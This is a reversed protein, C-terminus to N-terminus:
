SAAPAEASSQSIWCSSETIEPARKGSYRGRRIIGLFASKVRFSLHVFRTEADCCSFLAAFHYAPVAVEPVTNKRAEIRRVRVRQEIRTSDQGSSM